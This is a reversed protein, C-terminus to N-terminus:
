FLWRISIAGEVYRGPNVYVIETEYDEDFVNVASISTTLVWQPAIKWDRWVRLDVTKYSKMHFFPLETNEDDYYRDDSFRILLSWNLLDPNEYYLGVSGWYDPANRLENGKNKPDDVIESHNLTLSAQLRLEETIKQKLYFEMGYIEAEGLNQSRIITGGQVYPNEDYRYSVIDRIRGYYGTVGLQTNTVPLTVDVGADVMWTKEPKLNPNAERWVKGTRIQQFYWLALGPWYATGASSHLSINDNLKFRIGGRYTWTDKSIGDPEQPDSQTVFINHFKWYDYRLGGLLSLRDNFLLIQDQVYFAWQDTTVDYLSSTNTAIYKDKRYEKERSFFSGVTFIMNDLPYVDVQAEVPYRKVKWNQRREISPDLILNGQPDLSLGVNYQQPHDYYQYAASLKAKAISLIPTEMHATLIAQDGHDDLVLNPQGGDLYRNAYHLAIWAKTGSEGEWNVKGSFFSHEYSNDELSADRLYQKKGLRWLMIMDDVPKMKYGDSYDGTYSLFYRWNGTKGGVHVHPRYTDNSGYAMEGVAGMGERGERTVFNVVGGSANAGYLASSPGLLVDAREIHKPHITTSLFSWAPLGDILYVTRGIFYGTGRLHIWPPGWPYYQAVHVGPLDRIWEGVNAMYFDPQRDMGERDVSFFSFPVTEPDVETKTATVTIEKLSSVVGKNEYAGCFGSSLFFFLVLLCGVM